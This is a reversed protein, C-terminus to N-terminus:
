SRGLAERKKQLYQRRVLYSGRLMKWLMPPSYQKLYRSLVKSRFLVAVYLDIISQYFDAVSMHEPRITIHALDWKEYDARPIVLQEQQVPFGTGPLPTLPQLNVYHIDLKLLIEKLRSFERHSWHPPLIVTAFCDIGLTNLVEMARVNTAANTHKAYAELEEDFFSEFGVIVTKLGINRFDEMIEQNSAIFDARGYLLYHKKIGEKRCRTIFEQVRRSSCLFDDDVIYIESETITRLEAMVEDMDRYHHHGGTISRCFCFRCTYPCGFSTKILAVKNHFIYFYRSRYHRTLHRAPLPLYFDFEPLLHPQLKEGRRLVGAPCPARGALHELLLPFTRTANRVVRYDIAEDELDEPCVECHVGGVITVIYPNLERAQRCAHKMSNINTIYGTLCLIDPKERTLFRALSHKEIILDVIVPTAEPPVLAALIELELPEVIMVHQLGITEAAPRPRIFLIKM